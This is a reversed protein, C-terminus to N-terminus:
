SDYVYCDCWGRGREAPRESRDEETHEEQHNNNNRNNNITITTIITQSIQTSKWIGERRPCIM